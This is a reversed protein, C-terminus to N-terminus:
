DTSVSDKPEFHQGTMGCAGGFIRADYCDLVGVDMEGGTVYDATHQAFRVCIHGRDIGDKDTYSVRHWKCRVCFRGELNASM